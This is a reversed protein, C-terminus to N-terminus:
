FLVSFGVLILQSVKQLLKKLTFSYKSRAIKVAIKPFKENSIVKRRSAKNQKAKTEVFVRGFTRLVDAPSRKRGVAYTAAASAAKDGMRLGIEGDDAAQPRQCTYEVELYSTVDDSV